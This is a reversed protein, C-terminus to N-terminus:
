GSTERDEAGVEEVLPTVVEVTRREEWKQRLSGFMGIEPENLEGILKRTLELLTLAVRVNGEKAADSAITLWKHYDDEIIQLDSIVQKKARTFASRGTSDLRAPSSPRGAGGHDGGSPM